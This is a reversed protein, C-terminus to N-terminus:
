TESALAPRPSLQRDCFVRYDIGEFANDIAEISELEAEDLTGTLLADALADFREVHTNFRDIAYVKAQGTTVLFPWDSGELLLLERAAQNLAREQLANAPTPIQRALEEMRRESRHIIPWMFEVEPNLWVHYHGGAGWTSEPLQVAIQPPHADLHEGITSRTIGSGQALLRIVQKIWGIGEFWWHGFLETDFPVVLHGQEGTKELHAELMETLLGVYHEANIAVRQLAM